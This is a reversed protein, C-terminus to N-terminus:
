DDNDGKLIANKIFELTTGNKISQEHNKQVTLTLSDVHKELSKAKAETASIREGLTFFTTSAAGISAVAVGSLIGSIIKASIM